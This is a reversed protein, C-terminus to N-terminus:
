DLVWAYGQMLEERGGSEKVEGHAVVVRTFPWEFIRELSARFAAKNEVFRRELLTPALKGYTGGVRFVLQTLFPSRPGVNFALDCAILTASPRHFLVVENTQASGQLLLQDVTEAWAPEATTRLLTGEALDPRKLQLGPAIYLSANPFLTLWDAVFLHHYLSPALLYDVSGLVRVQEMLEATPAIPSYLLLRAGPLRLVTMRAGVDLGAFRLSSDAIWLDDDLQQVLVRQMGEICLM